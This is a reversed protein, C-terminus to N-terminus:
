GPQCDTGTQVFTSEQRCHSTEPSSLLRNGKTTADKCPQGGSPLSIEQVGRKPEGSRHVVVSRHPRTAISQPCTCTKSPPMGAKRAACGVCGAQGRLSEASTGAFFPRVGSDDHQAPGCGPRPLPAAPSEGAPPLKSYQEAARNFRAPPSRSSRGLIVRCTPSWNPSQGAYLRHRGRWSCRRATRGPGLDTSTTPTRFQDVNRTSM